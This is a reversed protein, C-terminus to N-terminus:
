LYESQGSHWARVPHSPSDIPFLWLRLMAQGDIMWCSSAEQINALALFEKAPTHSMPISILCARKQQAKGQSNMTILCRGLSEICCASRQLSSGEECLAVTGFRPLQLSRQSNGPTKSGPDDVSLLPSQQALASHYSAPDSCM